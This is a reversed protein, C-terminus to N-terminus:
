RLQSTVTNGILNLRVRTDSDSLADTRVQRQPRWREALVEALLRRQLASLRLRVPDVGLVAGELDRRRGRLAM